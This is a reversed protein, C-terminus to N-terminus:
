EYQQELPRHPHRVPVAGYQPREHGTYDDFMQRIEGNIDPGHTDDDCRVAAVAAVADCLRRVYSGRGVNGRRADIFRLARDSLTVQVRQGM